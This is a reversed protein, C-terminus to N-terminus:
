RIGLVQEPKSGGARIRTSNLWPYPFKWEFVLDEPVLPKWDNQESTEFARAQGSSRLDSSASQVNVTGTVSSGYTQIGNQFIQIYARSKDSCTEGKLIGSAKSLEELLM